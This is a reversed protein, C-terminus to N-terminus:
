KDFTINVISTINFMNKNTKHKIHETFIYIELKYISM